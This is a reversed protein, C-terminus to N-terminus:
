GERRIVDEWWKEDGFEKEKRIKMYTNEDRKM